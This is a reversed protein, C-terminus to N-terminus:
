SSTCRSCCRAARAAVRAPRRPLLRARAAPLAISDRSAHFAGRAGYGFGGAADWLSTMIALKAIGPKGQCLFGSSFHRDVRLDSSRAGGRRHVGGGQGRHEGTKIRQAHRGGLQAPLAIGRQEVGLLRCEHRVRRDLAHPFERGPPQARPARQGLEADRVERELDRGVAPGQPGIDRTPLM